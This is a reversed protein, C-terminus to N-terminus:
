LTHQVHNHADDGASSLKVATQTLYQVILKVPEVDGVSRTNKLSATVTTQAQNLLMFQNLIFM